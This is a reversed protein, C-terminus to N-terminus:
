RRWPRALFGKKTPGHRTRAGSRSGHRKPYGWRREAAVVHKLVNNPSIPKGSWTAFVLAEGNVVGVRHQWAEILNVAATSLPVRRLGEPTKPTDIIGAYVAERVTLSPEALDIDKWRL